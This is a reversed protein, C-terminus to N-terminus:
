SIMKILISERAREDIASEVLQEIMALGVQEALAADMAVFGAQSPDHKQIVILKGDLYVFLVEGGAPVGEELSSSPIGNVETGKAWLALGYRKKEMIREGEWDFSDILEKCAAFNRTSGLNRAATFLELANIM